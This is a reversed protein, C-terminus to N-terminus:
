GWAGDMAERLLVRTEPKHLGAKELAQRCIHNFFSEVAQAVIMGRGNVTRHGTARAHRMFVTEEPYYILDYFITERPVAHAVEMSIRHNIEINQPRAAEAPTAPTPALSSYAEFAGGVGAGQGKITCNVILKVGPATAPIEEERIASANGHQRSIEQALRHANEYSRNAILIKGGGIKEALAFAVARASGGAGLVLVDIGDLSKLLPSKEGAGPTLLTEIFGTGDTNAGYLDGDPRRVITNVAGSQKATQDLADLYKMVAIKHPVTVNLGLIAPTERIAAMLDGLRSEEVDLAMYRAEVRLAAFAANWLAPSKSYRSPSAGIVAAIANADQVTPEIRNLICSQIRDLDIM